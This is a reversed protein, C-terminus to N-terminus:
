LKKPMLRTRSDWCLRYKKRAIGAKELAIKGVTDGLYFQHDVDVATLASVLITDDPIINTADLRGGMGVEVVAVDVQEREFVRLATLTLIEFSSLKTGKEFDKETVEARAANYLASSVPINNITICDYISVLHPSNYRGVNLSSQLISSVLASVSGKGNTGAIHCTPRTYPPLHNVLIRLRDLSLDISM